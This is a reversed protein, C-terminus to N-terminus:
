EDGQLTGETSDTPKDQTMVKGSQTGEQPAKPSVSSKDQGSWHGADREMRDRMMDQHLRMMEMRDERVKERDQSLKQQDTKM